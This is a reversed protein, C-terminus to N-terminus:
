GYLVAGLDKELVKVGALIDVTVLHGQKNGDYTITVRLSLGMYDMVASLAGTGARPQALPRTVLTLADRHFPFNFSGSPGLNVTAGSAVTAELPRDLVIGVMGNVELIGYAIPSSGFTVLQGVQPAASLGAITIEKAYGLQTTSDYTYTASATGTPYLSIVANDAVARKLGTTAVIATPTAGGTTSAVQLPTDDGAVTFWTGATIAAILGDVTFTTAGAPYGAANNIAGNVTTQPGVLPQNQAMLMDFGLKRGLSANRLASGDDGVRSADTFQELTLLATETAPTLVLRRDSDYAKNTNMIQRAALVYDKANTSDLKGLRGASNGMFQYVQASLIQDIGRAQAAMAPRLFEDIISTFAVSEEGDKILYSVHLHQNLRVPINTAVANQVTVSDANTKRKAKFQGSKHVNVVDGYSAITSEFDRHVLQGLVMNETLLALGERAWLQVNFAELTNDRYVNSGLLAGRRIGKRSINLTM